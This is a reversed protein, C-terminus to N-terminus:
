IQVVSDRPKFTFRYNFSNIIESEDNNRVTEDVVLTLSYGFWSGWINRNSNTVQPGRILDSSDGLRNKGSEDFRVKGSANIIFTGTGPILHCDFSLLQHSTQPTELWKKQFELKSDPTPPILPKGNIIVAAQPKM